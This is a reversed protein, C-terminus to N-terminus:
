LDSTSFLLNAYGTEQLQQTVPMPVSSMQPRGVTESIEAYVPDVNSSEPQNLEIEDYIHPQDLGPTNRHNRVMEYAENKGMRLVLTYAENQQISPEALGQQTGLSFTVAM